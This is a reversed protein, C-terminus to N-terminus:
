ARAGRPKRRPLGPPLAPSARRGSRRWARTAPTTPWCPRALDGDIGQRHGQAAQGSLAARVPGAGRARDPRAAGAGAARGSAAAARAAPHAQRLHRLSQRDLERDATVSLERPRHAVPPRPEPARVPQVPGGIASRAQAWALWPQEPKSSWGSGRSWRRCGCCGARPCRRRATSRPPARSCSASRASSRCSIMLQPESGSRPRRWAWRWGCRGASGPDRIPPRPGRAKTSRAWSSSTPRSCAPRSRIASRSARICHGARASARRRSWRAISTPTTARRWTPPRCPRTSSAPLFSRRGNAPRAKACRAATM